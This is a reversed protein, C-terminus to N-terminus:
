RVLDVLKKRGTWQHAQWGAKRAAAVNAEMDDVLVHEAAAEGTKAMSAQFFGRHPKRAGLDASYCMGEVKSSLGLDEMLYKARAHDQNTALWVTWGSGRLRSVDELVSTVIQADNSFWYAILDQARVNLHMERLAQGLVPELEAQGVVIKHWYKKFFGDQLHAPPIGLDAELDATWLRRDDLVVGDVDLMLCPM